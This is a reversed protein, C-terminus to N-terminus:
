GQKMQILDNLMTDVTSVVKTNAQFSRETVIMNTLETALNVNSQELYGASISGLGNQNAVNVQPVGSDSTVTYQNNGISSLGAPNSFNALAVQGLALAQGNSFVGTITGTQDVTFSQLTGTAYGDQSSPALSSSQALQTTGGFNLAINQPSTAATSTFQLNGTSATEAGNSDFTITGQNEAPTAPTMGSGAAGATPTTLTDNQSMTTGASTTTWNWTNAATASPTLSLTITQQNGQSDYVNVSRTYATGPTTGSNLNGAYTVSTTAQARTLSGIPVSITSAPTITATNNVVGTASASYGLVEDGTSADVLQGRSDVAFHGDRQYNIGGSAGATMFYGNGQIAMDTPSGTSQLGGQAEQVTISGIKTGLGVQVPDTTGGGNTPAQAGQISQSLQSSFTVESSKYATTDVNSINNGIVNMDTQTASIASVGNYMAQLV